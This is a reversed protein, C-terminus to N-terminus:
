SLRTYGTRIELNSRRLVRDACGVPRSYLFTNM